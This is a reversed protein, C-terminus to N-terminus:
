KSASFYGDCGDFYGGVADMVDALNALHTSAFSIPLPKGKQDVPYRYADSKPDIKAFEAVVAQVVADADDPDPIQYRDVMESFAEWLKALDHTHWNPEAGVSPGHTALQHKLSLEIFHRYNFIIPYVLFDRDAPHDICHIVALDAAKKYGDTMLVLRTYDDEAITANDIAEGGEIFASDGAMPWRFDSDLLSEFVHRKSM